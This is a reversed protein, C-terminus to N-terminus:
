GKYDKEPIKVTIVTGENMASEIYIGFEEGYYLKIRENVNRMGYGKSNQSLMIDITNQDMGVGNDEIMMYVVGDNKTAYIKILGRKDTEILDIGHKISNEVIPQLILNLSECGLIDDDVDCEVDFNYDHMMLQIDLYAKMNEIEDRVSCTNKGKNLSTRYFQSLSLTIKSIDNAGVELAKFNIMSLTNYLFHPNIQQQLARMEYEKQHLKSVYVEEILRSIREVMKKFSRQLTGIEDKYQDEPIKVDMEGIEILQMHLMLKEIRGSILHTTSILVALMMMGCILIVIMIVLYISQLQKQSYTIPKYLTIEWDNINSKKTIFTYKNDNKYEKINMYDIIETQHKQDFNHTEYILKGNDTIFIGYNSFDISDFPAFLHESNVKILLIGLVGARDLLPMKRTAYISQNDGEKKFWHINSDNINNSYWSEKKILHLPALIDDHAVVDGTYITIQQIDNHFYKMSNVSPDLYNTIQEYMEFTSSYEYTLTNSIVQNFALYDSLNNFIEMRNDFNSVASNIYNNASIQEEEILLSRVQSYFYTSLIVVPIFGLCFYIISFKYRLKMDGFIRAINKM